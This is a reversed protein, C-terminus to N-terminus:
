DSEVVGRDRERRRKCSRRRRTEEISSTEIISTRNATNGGETAQKAESWKGVWIMRKEVLLAFLFVLDGVFWFENQGSSAVTGRTGDTLWQAFRACTFMTILTRTPASSGPILAVLCDSNTFPSIYRTDSIVTSLMDRSILPLGSFQLHPQLIHGSKPVDVALSRTHIGLEEPECTLNGSRSLM